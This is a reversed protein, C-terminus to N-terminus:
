HRQGLDIKFCIVYKKMLGQIGTSKTDNIWIVKFIPSFSFRYFVSKKGSFRLYVGRDM